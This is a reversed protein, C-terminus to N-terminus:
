HVHGHAPVQSSMSALRILNGGRTVVREGPQLGEVVQVLGGERVGLTVPNRVFSEGEVQVFVIPRGADDVIASEPVVAARAAADTFLRVHVNQNVAVRRNRNDVEYIVPFTRSAPDMVHGVSILRQMRQPQQVGPIELEAGSLSSIRPFESEPVIASIYVTELDVIAFLVEGAEVNAGPAAHAEAITGSIPARLAFLRVGTPAGEATSSTDYQGLRANAARLRAEATAEVARAEDLRKAPAAGAAVLREARERDKRALELEAAAQSQSSEMSALDSPASTPPLLEALVQGQTVRSGIVPLSSAVLRGSFPVTVEASGGSRPIVEAPVLFSSKLQRSEALATAYDLAWQQEKLFAIREETPEAPAARAAQEADAYVTVDGIAIADTLAPSEIRVTMAVTGTNKPTVNVGFIGPRTQPDAVFQETSGGGQLEVVVRAESAPRFTKLNTFHVAFRGTQGAMLAPYEMFLESKETWKTVALTIEGPATAQAQPEQRSCGALTLLALVCAIYRKM